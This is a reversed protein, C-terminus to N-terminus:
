FAITSNAVIQTTGRLFLKATLNHERCTDTASKMRGILQRVSEATFEATFKSNKAMLITRTLRYAVRMKSEGQM